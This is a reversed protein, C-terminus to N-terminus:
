LMMIGIINKELRTKEDIAKDIAEVGASHQNIYIGNLSNTAIVKDDVQTDLYENFAIVKIGPQTFIDGYKITVDTGNIKLKQDNKKNAYFWMGLFVLVLVILIVITAIIRPKQEIDVITLVLSLIATVASVIKIFNRWLRKNCFKVKMM